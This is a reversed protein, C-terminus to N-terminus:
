SPDKGLTARAAWASPRTFAGEPIFTAKSLDVLVMRRQDTRSSFRVRKSTEAIYGKHKKNEAVLRRLDGLEIIQEWGIQKCYKTFLDYTTSLHVALLERQWIYHVGLRLQGQIALLTLMEWFRDLHKMDDSLEAKSGGSDKAAVVHRVTFERQFHDGEVIVGEAITCRITKRANRSRALGARSGIVLKLVAPETDKSEASIEFEGVRVVINSM